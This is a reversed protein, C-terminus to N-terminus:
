VTTQKRQIADRVAVISQYVRRRDRERKPTKALLLAEIKKLEDLPSMDLPKSGGNEYFWEKPKAAMEYNDRENNCQWCSLM